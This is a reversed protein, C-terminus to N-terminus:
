KIPKAKWIAKKTEPDFELKWEYNKRTMIITLIVAGGGLTTAIGGGVLLGLKTTPEPDFFALLIMGAGFIIMSGAGAIAVREGDDLPINKPPKKFQSSNYAMAGIGIGKEVLLTAVWGPFATGWIWKAINLPNNSNPKWETDSTIIKFTKKEQMLKKVQDQWGKSSTKIQPIKNNASM